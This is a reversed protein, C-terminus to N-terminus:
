KEAEEVLMVPIKDKIPYRLGCSLCVIKDEKEVVEGKCSPCILIALLGKSISMGGRLKRRKM